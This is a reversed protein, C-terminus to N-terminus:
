CSYCEFQLEANLLLSKRNKIRFVYRHEVEQRWKYFCSKRQSHTTHIYCKFKQLFSLIRYNRIIDSLTETIAYKRDLYILAITNDREWQYNSSSSQFSFVSIGLSFFIHWKYFDEKYQYNIGAIDVTYVYHCKSIYIRFNCKM